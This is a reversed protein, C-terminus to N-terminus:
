PAAELPPRGLSGTLNAWFDGGQVGVLSALFGTFLGAAQLLPHRRTLLAGAAVTQALGAADLGLHPIIGTAVRTRPPWPATRGDAPLSVDPADPSVGYVDGEHVPGGQEGVTREGTIVRVAKTRPVIRELLPAKPSPAPYLRMSKAMAFGIALTLVDVVHGTDTFFKGHRLDQYRNGTSVYGLGTLDEVFKTNQARAHLVENALTAFSEPRHPAGVASAIAVGAQSTAEAFRQRHPRKMKITARRQAGNPRQRPSFERVAAVARQAVAAPPFFVPAALSAASSAVNKIM